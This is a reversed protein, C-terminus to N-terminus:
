PSKGDLLLTYLVSIDTKNNGQIPFSPIIAHIIDIVHAGTTQVQALKCIITGGAADYIEKVHCIMVSFYNLFSFFLTKYVASNFITCSVVM